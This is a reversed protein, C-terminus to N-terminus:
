ARPPLEPLSTHGSHINVPSYFSVIKLFSTSRSINVYNETAPIFDFASAVQAHKGNKGSPNESNEENVKKLWSALLSENSDALCKVTVTGNSSIGTSIIDYWNGNLNLESDDVHSLLYDKKSFHLTIAKESDSPSVNLVEHAMENKVKNLAFLYFPYHVINGLLMIVALFLISIRHARTNV